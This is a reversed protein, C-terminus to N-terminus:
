EPTRVGELEKLIDKANNFIYECQAISRSRIFTPEMAQKLKADNIEKELRELRNVFNELLYNPKRKMGDYVFWESAHMMNPQIHVLPIRQGTRLDNELRTIEASYVIINDYCTSIWLGQNLSHFIDNIDPKKAVIVPEEIVEPEPIPEPAPLEIQKRPETLDKLYKVARFLVPIKVFM